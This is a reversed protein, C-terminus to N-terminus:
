KSFSYRIKNIQHSLVELELLAPAVAAHTSSKKFVLCQQLQKKGTKKLKTKNKGSKRLAPARVRM